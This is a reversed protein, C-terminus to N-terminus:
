KPTKRINWLEELQYRNRVEETFIHVIVSGTDLVVWDSNNNEEPKIGIIGMKKLEKNVNEAISSVHKKSRGTALIMYDAIGSNEPVDIVVINEAKLDDLIATIHKKLQKIETKIM